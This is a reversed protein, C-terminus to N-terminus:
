KKTKNSWDFAIDMLYTTLLLLAAVLLAFWVQILEGYALSLTVYLCITLVLLQVFNKKM